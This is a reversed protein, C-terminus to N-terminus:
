ERSRHLKSHSDGEGLGLGSVSLLLAAIHKIIFGIAERRAQIETHRAGSALRGSEQDWHLCHVANGPIGPFTRLLEGHLGDWVRLTSDWSGSVVRGGRAAVCSM